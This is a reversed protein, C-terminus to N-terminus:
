ADPEGDRTVWRRVEAQLTGNTIVRNAGAAMAQQRLERDQHSCFGILEVTPHAARLNSITAIGQEPSTNLDVLVCAGEDVQGTPVDAVGSVRQLPITGLAAVVRSRLMLDTGVLGIWRPRTAPGGVLESMGPM